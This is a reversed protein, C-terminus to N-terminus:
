ADGAERARKIWDVTRLTCLEHPPVRVIRWGLAAAESYKECDKLFGVGRVHRGGSFAGGEVELAVKEALWAYDFRWRRPSAFRLETSPAPIGAQKLLAAFIAHENGKVIQPIGRARVVRKVEGRTMRTM